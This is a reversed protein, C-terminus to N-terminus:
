LCTSSSRQRFRSVQPALEGGHVPEDAACPHAFAFKQRALQEIRELVSIISFCPHKSASKKASSLGIALWTVDPGIDFPLLNELSSTRHRLKHHKDSDDSRQDGAGGQERV